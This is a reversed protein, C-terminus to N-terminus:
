APNSSGVTESSYFHLRNRNDGVVVTRGDFGISKWRSGGENKVTQAQKGQNEEKKM